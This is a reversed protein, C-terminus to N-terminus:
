RFGGLFLKKDASYWSKAIIENESVYPAHTM